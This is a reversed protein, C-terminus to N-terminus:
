FPGLNRSSTIGRAQTPEPMNEPGYTLTYHKHLV